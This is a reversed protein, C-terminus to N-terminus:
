YINNPYNMNPHEVCVSKTFKDSATIRQKLADVLGSKTDQDTFKPSVGTAIHYNWFEIARQIQNSRFNPFIYSLKYEYYVSNGKGFYKSLIPRYLDPCVYDKESLFSCALIIRECGSLYAYLATQLLHNEPAGKLWYRINKAGTTKLEVMTDTGLCDWKGGFIPENPFYDYPWSVCHPFSEPTRLNLKPFMTQLEAILKKEVIRGAKFQPTEVFDWKVIRSIECWAEFPSKFRDLELVSPFRTGTIKLPNAPPTCLVQNEKITYANTLIKFKKDYM